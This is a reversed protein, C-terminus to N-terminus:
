TEVATCVGHHVKFDIGIISSSKEKMWFTKNRSPGEFEAGFHPKKEKGREFFFQILHNVFKNLPRPFCLVPVIYIRVVKRLFLWM